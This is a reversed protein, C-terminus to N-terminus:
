SGVREIAAVLSTFFVAPAGYREMVGSASNEPDLSQLYRVAAVLGAATTAPLELVVLFADEELDSAGAEAEDHDFTCADVEQERSIRTLVAGFNKDAQRHEEILEYIPDPGAGRTLAIAGLNTTTGAALVATATGARILTRRSVTSPTSM